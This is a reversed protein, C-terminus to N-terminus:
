FVLTLTWGNVIHLRVLPTKLFVKFRCNNELLVVSITGVLNAKLGFNFLLLFLNCNVIVIVALLHYM